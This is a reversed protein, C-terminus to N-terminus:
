DCTTSLVCLEYKDIVSDLSTFSNDYSPTTVVTEAAM